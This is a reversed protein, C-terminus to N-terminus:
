AKVKKPEKLDLMELLPSRQCYLIGARVNEREEDTLKPWRLAIVRKGIEVALKPRNKTGELVAKLLRYVVEDDDESKNMDEILSVLKELAEEIESKRRKEM